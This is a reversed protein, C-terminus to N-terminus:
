VHSQRGRLVSRSLVAILFPTWVPVVGWAGTLDALIMGGLAASAIALGLPPRRRATTVLLFVALAGVPAWWNWGGAGGADLPRDWGLTAIARLMSSV